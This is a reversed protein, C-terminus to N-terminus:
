VLPLRYPPDLRPAASPRLAFAVPPPAPAPPPLLVGVAGGAGGAAAGPVIPAGLPMPLLPLTPGYVV